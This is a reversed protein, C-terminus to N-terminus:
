GYNAVPSIGNRRLTVHHGDRYFAFSRSASAAELLHTRRNKPDKRALALAHAYRDSARNRLVVYTYGIMGKCSRAVPSIIPPWNPKFIAGKIQLERTPRARVCFFCKSSDDLTGLDAEDYAEMLRLKRACEYCIQVNV